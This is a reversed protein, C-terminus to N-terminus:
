SWFIGAFVALFSFLGLPARPPPAVFALPGADEVYFTARDDRLVVRLRGERGCFRMQVLPLAWLFNWIAQREEMLAM